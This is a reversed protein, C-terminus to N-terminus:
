TKLTLLHYKLIHFGLFRRWKWHVSEVVHESVRKSILHAFFHGFLLISSKSTIIIFHLPSGSSHTLLSGLTKKMNLLFHQDKKKEKTNQIFVLAMNIFTSNPSSINAPSFFVPQRIAEICTVYETNNQTNHNKTDRTLSSDGERKMKFYKNDSTTTLKLNIHLIINTIIFCNLLPIWRQIKIM